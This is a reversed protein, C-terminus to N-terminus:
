GEEASIIEVAMGAHIWDPVPVSAEASPPESQEDAM